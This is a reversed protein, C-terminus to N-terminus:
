GSVEERESVGLRERTKSTGKFVREVDAAAKEQLVRGLKALLSPGGSAHPPQTHTNLPTLTLTHCVRAIRPAAPLLRAFTKESSAGDHPPGGRPAGRGAPGRPPPCVVCRTAAHTPTRQPSSAPPAFNAFFLLLSQCARRRRGVRM